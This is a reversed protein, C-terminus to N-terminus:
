RRGMGVQAVSAHWGIFIRVPAPDIAPDRERAQRNRECLFCHRNV